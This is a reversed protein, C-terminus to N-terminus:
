EVKLLVRAGSLSVFLFTKGALTQRRVLPFTLHLGWVIVGGILSGKLAGQVARFESMDFRPLPYLRVEIAGNKQRSTLEYLYLSRSPVQLEYAIERHKIIRPSLGLMLMTLAMPLTCM